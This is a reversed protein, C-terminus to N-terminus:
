NIIIGDTNRYIEKTNANLIVLPYGKTGEIKWVLVYNAPRYPSAYNPNYICLSYFICTHDFNMVKKAEKIADTYSIGPETSLSLNYTRLTDTSTVQNNEKSKIIVYQEMLIPIGKYSVHCKMLWSYPSSSLEYPKLCPYQALLVKFEPVDITNSDIPTGPADQQKYDECSSLDKKCNSFLALSILLIFLTKM